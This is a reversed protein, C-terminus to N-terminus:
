KEISIGCYYCEGNYNKDYWNQFEQLNIELISASKSKRQYKIGSLLAWLHARLKAKYPGHKERHIKSRINKCIICHKDNTTRESIHGRICKLGTFYRKLGREKAEQRSIINQM